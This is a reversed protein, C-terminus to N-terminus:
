EAKNSRNKDQAAIYLAVLRAGAPNYHGDMPYYFQQPATGEPFAPATSAVRGPSAIAQIEALTKEHGGRIIDQMPHVIYIRYSFGYRRSLEDLRSFQIKTAALAQQLEARETQPSLTARLLPGGVYYAVRVLNSAALVTKRGDLIKAWAGKEQTTDARDDESGDATHLNGILDNGAMLSSTMGMFLLRVEQPRWNERILYQELRDLQGATATGPVGLNACSRETEACYIFPITEEDALGVGYTFSDGIFVVDPNAPDLPGRFGRNTHTVTKDFEQSVIRYSLGPTLGGGSAKPNVPQGDQDLVTHGYKVPMFIRSGAEAILLSAAVSILLLLANKVFGPMALSIYGSKWATEFVIPFFM